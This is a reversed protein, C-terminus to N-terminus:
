GDVVFLVVLEKGLSLFCTESGCDVNRVRAAFPFDQFSREVRPLCSSIGMREGEPVCFYMLMRGSLCEEDQM